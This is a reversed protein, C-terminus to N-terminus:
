LVAETKHPAVRLGLKEIGGIVRYAATMAVFSARARNEGSALIVTDDAYCIICCGDPLVTGLISDYGINWLTPGLVSGQPVGCSVPRKVVKGECDVYVLWRDRLYSSVVRVLYSPFGMSRM